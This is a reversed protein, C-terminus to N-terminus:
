EGLQKEKIEAEIVLSDDEMPIAPAIRCIDFRNPKCFIENISVGREKSFACNTTSATMLVAWDGSIAIVREGIEVAGMDCAQLVAQLCPVVGGGFISLANRLVHMERNHAEMGEINDFPLRGTLVTIGVGDFFKRLKPDIQPKYTHDAHKFTFEPPCTVAIIKPDHEEFMKFARAPGEGYATFIVIKLGRLEPKRSLRKRVVRLVSVLNERGESPFYRIPNDYTREIAM